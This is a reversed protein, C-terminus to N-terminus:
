DVSKVSLSLFLPNAPLSLSYLNVLSRIKWTMAMSMKQACFYFGRLFFLPNLICVVLPNDSIPAELFFEPSLTFESSFIDSLGSYVFVNVLCVCCFLLPKCVAKGGSALEQASSLSLSCLREPNKLLVHFPPIFSYPFESSNWKPSM